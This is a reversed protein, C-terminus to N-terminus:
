LVNPDDIHSDQIITGEIINRLFCKIVRVMDDSTVSKWISHSKLCQKKFEVFNWLIKACKSCIM